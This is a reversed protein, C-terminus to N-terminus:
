SKGWVKAARRRFVITRPVRSSLRMNPAQRPPKPDPLVIKIGATAVRAEALANDLLSSARLNVAEREQALLSPLVRGTSFVPKPEIKVEQPFLVAYAYATDAPTWDTSWFWLSM